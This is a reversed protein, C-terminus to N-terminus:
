QASQHRLSRALVLSITALRELPTQTPPPTVSGGCVASLCGLNSLACPSALNLTVYLAHVNFFFLVSACVYLASVLMYVTPIMVFSM